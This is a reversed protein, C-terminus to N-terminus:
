QPLLWTFFFVACCQGSVQGTGGFFAVAPNLPSTTPGIIKNPQCSQQKNRNMFFNQTVGPSVVFYIPGGV